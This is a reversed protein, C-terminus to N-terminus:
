KKLKWTYNPMNYVGKKMVDTKEISGNSTHFCLTRHVSTLLMKTIAQIDRSTFHTKPYAKFIALVKENQTHAKKIAEKLKDNKLGITNYFIKAM